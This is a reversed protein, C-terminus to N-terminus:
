LRLVYLNFTNLLYCFKHIEVNISFNKSNVLSQSHEKIKRGRHNFQFTMFRFFCFIQSNIKPCFIGSSSILVDTM